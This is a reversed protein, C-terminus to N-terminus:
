QSNGFVVWAAGAGLWAAFVFVAGVHMAVVVIALLVEGLTKM